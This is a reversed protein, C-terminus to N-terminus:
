SGPAEEAPQPAKIMDRCLIHLFKLANDTNGGYALVSLYGNEAYCLTSLGPLTDAPIGYLHTEDSESLTRWGRGDRPLLYLDGEAAAIYTTLQMPGYNNDQFFTNSSMSEMDAMEGSRIKEMYANLSDADSLGYVYFDVRKDEPIRPATVTMLLNVAFIGAVLVLLYKWWSYTFHQRLSEANLPTKM